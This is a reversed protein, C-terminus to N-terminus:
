VMESVCMACVTRISTQQLSVMYIINHLSLMQGTICSPLVYM